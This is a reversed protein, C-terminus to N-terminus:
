QPVGNTDDAAKGNGIRDGLTQLQADGDILTRLWTFAEGLSAVIETEEPLLKQLDERVASSPHFLVARDGLMYGDKLEKYHTALNTRSIGLYGGENQQGRDVPREFANVLSVPIREPRYVLLVTDALAHSAFSNQKGSPTVRCAADLVAVLSDTATGLDGDLNEVLLPVNCSFYKYFVASNFEVEGLHGSGTEDVGTAIDDVATFWDVDPIVTHTSIAHAVQMSADVAAFTGADDTTMRGFLAMDVGDGPNRNLGIETAANEKIRKLEAATLKTDSLAIARLYERVRDIEGATLFVIQSTHLKNTKHPKGIVETFTECLKTLREAMTADGGIEAVLAKHIEEPIQRSRTSLKNTLISELYNSTRISRKVAQSSIRARQAGGFVASKPRGLDDRNLNAPAHSTLSHLEILM